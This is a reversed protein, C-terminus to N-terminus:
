NKHYKNIHKQLNKSYVYKKQCYICYKCSLTNKNSKGGKNNEKKDLENQRLCGLIDFGREYNLPNDSLLLKQLNKDTINLDLDPVSDVWVKNEWPDIKNGGKTM